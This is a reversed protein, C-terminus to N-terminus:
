FITRKLLWYAGVGAIGMTAPHAIGSSYWSRSRFAGVLAFAGAIVAIQGLEVGVNFLLLAQAFSEQPMHIEQLVAAFGLGHLLGFACVVLMRFPALHSAYLNDLAVYVISAAILPEVIAAPVSVFGYMALGLTLSHAITFGTVQLLLPRLGTSLFFLGLVFAIHDLGRPIIHQFGIVVWSLSPLWDQSASVMLAGIDVDEGTTAGHLAVSGSNRDYSTLLRSVPLERGAIDLRVLCPWPVAFDDALSVGISDRPIASLHYTLTAMQPTLPNEIAALSVAPFDWSQLTPSATTGDVEFRLGADLQEKVNRMLMAQEASPANALTWYEDASMLSQGLDIRLTIKTPEIEQTQVEIHTMNLMHASAINTFALAALVFTLRFLYRRPHKRM